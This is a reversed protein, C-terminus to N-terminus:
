LFVEGSVIRLLMVQLVLADPFGTDKWRGNVEGCGSQRSDALFIALLSERERERALSYLSRQKFSPRSLFLLAVQLDLIKGLALRRKGPLRLKAGLEM